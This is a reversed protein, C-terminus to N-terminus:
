YSHNDTIKDNKIENINLFKHSYIDMIFPNSAKANGKNQGIIQTNTTLTETDKPSKQILDLEKILPVIM